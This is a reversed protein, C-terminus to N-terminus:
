DMPIAHPWVSAMLSNAGVLTKYMNSLNQVYMNLSLFMLYIYNVWHETM